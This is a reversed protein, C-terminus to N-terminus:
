EPKYTVSKPKIPRVNNSGNFARPFGKDNFLVTFSQETERIVANDYTLQMVELMQDIQEVTYMDRLIKAWREAQGSEATPEANQKEAKPSEAKQNKRDTIDTVSM